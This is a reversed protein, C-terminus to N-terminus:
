HKRKSAPLKITADIIIIKPVKKYQKIAKNYFKLLRKIPNDSKTVKLVVYFSRKTSESSEYAPLQKRFGHLLRNNSSLKIEVLIRKEYGYSVKFDVPGNGANPERNLDINNASCYSDAVAYFLRQSYREHRPKNKHGNHGHLVYLVENLGNEEINRKFQQIIKEVVAEVEDISATRKLDLKFPYRDAYAKGFNYWSIEGSPDNEFDYPGDGRERYSEILTRLNEPDKLIIDRLVRKPFKINKKWVMGILKNLRDRLEKNTSVVYDIDEWSYAVPLDRLLERPLFVIPKNRGQPHKPLYYVRELTKTTLLNEIKLEKAIRASFKYIEDKIISITMDSLRDAGFDTEFLGLLEFIEPDRIGMDIIESATSILRNALTIGIASGDSSHVGYGISVGRLEKFILRRQATRWAIDNTKKSSQLLKIIDAYYRLIKARSKKFESIRTKKLLFPDLFLHTDIGIVADFIGKKDFIRPNVSLYSSIKQAM